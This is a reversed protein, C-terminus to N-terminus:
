SLDDYETNRNPRDANRYRAVPVLAAVYVEAREDVGGEWDIFEFADEPTEFVHGEGYPTTDSDSGFTNWRPDEEEVRGVIAYGYEAVVQAM